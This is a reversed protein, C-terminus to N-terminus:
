IADLEADRQKRYEAMDKYWEQITPDNPDHIGFTQQIPNDINGVDMRVIWAGARTKEDILQRLKQLAEPQTKGEASLCFPEGARARFGIEPLTEVLVSIQM